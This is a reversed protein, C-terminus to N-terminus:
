DITDTYRYNDFTFALDLEGLEGLVWGTLPVADFSLGMFLVGEEGRSTPDALKGKYNYKATPNDAIKKQLRTDLKLMKMSGTGKGGLVKNGVLFVGAQKVDAKEFEVTADFEQTGQLEKGVEDYVQGYLGNVVENADFM